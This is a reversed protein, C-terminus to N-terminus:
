PGAPREGARRQGHAQGAGAAAGALRHGRDAPGSRRAAPASGIEVVVQPAPAPVLEDVLEGIRATCNQNVWDVVYRNPRWCACGAATRSPRCRASGPTSISTRSSRKSAASANIGSLIEVVPPGRLSPSRQCRSPAALTYRSSRGTSIKPKRNVSAPETRIRGPGKVALAHQQKQDQKRAPCPASMFRVNLRAVQVALSDVAETRAHGGLATAEDEGAAAGLAALTERDSREGLWYRDCRRGRPAQRALAAQGVLRLEIGHVACPRTRGIRQEHHDCPGVVQAVGAEAEGDADLRGAVGHVAIADLAQNTFREAVALLLQGGQVDDDVRSRRGALCCRRSEARAQLARPCSRAVIRVSRIPRMVARGTTRSGAARASSGNKDSRNRSRAPLWEVDHPAARCRARPADCRGSDDRAGRRSRDRARICARRVVVSILSRSM